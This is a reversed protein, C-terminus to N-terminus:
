GTPAAPMGLGGPLQFVRGVGANLSADLDIAAHILALHTFPILPYDSM